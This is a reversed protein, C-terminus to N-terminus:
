SGGVIGDGIDMGEPVVKLDELVGTEGPEDQQLGGERM